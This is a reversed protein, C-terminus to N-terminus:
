RVTPVAGSASASKRPAAFDRPAFIAARAGTAGRKTHLPARVEIMAAQYYKKVNRIVKIAVYEQLERDWCELM